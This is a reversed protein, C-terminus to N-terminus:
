DRAGDECYAKELDELGMYLALRLVTSRTVRGFSAVSPVNSLVPVLAEARALLEPTLRLPTPATEKKKTTVPAESDPEALLARLRAALEPNDALLAVARADLARLRRERDLDTPERTM